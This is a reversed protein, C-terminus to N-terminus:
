NNRKLCSFTSIGPLDVKNDNFLTITGKSADFETISFYFFDKDTTDYIVLFSGQKRNGENQADYKTPEKATIYYMFKGILQKKNDFFISINLAKDTFTWRVQQLGDKSVDDSSVSWFTNKSKSLDKISLLALKEPRTEESASYDDTDGLAKGIIRNIRADDDIYVNFSANIIPSNMDYYDTHASYSVVYHDYMDSPKVSLTKASLGDIPNEDTLLDVLENDQCKQAFSETCYQEILEAIQKDYDLSTNKPNSKQFAKCKEDTLLAYKKYFTYVTQLKASDCKSDAFCSLSKAFIAVITMVFILFIHKM